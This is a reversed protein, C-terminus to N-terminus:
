APHLAELQGRSDKKEYTLDEGHRGRAKAVTYSAFSPFVYGSAEAKGCFGPEEGALSYSDGNRKLKALPLPEAQSFAPSVM